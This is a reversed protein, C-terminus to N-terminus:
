RLGCNKACIYWTIQSNRSVAFEFCCTLSRQRGRSVCIFELRYDPAQGLIIQYVTNGHLTSCHVIHPVASKVTDYGLFRTSWSLYLEYSISEYEGSPGAGRKQPLEGPVINSGEVTKLKSSLPFSPRTGPLADHWLPTAPRLPEPTM